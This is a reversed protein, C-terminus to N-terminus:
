QPTVSKVTGNRDGSQLQGARQKPRPTLCILFPIKYNSVKFKKYFAGRAIEILLLLPILPSIASFIGDLTLLSSYNGTKFTQILQSIGLFGMLEDYLIQFFHM